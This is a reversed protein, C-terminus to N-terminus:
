IEDYPHSRYERKNKDSHVYRFKIDHKELYRKYASVMTLLLSEEGYEEDVKEPFRHQLENFNLKNPSDISVPTQKHLFWDDFAERLTRLLMVEGDSTNLRDIAAFPIGHDCSM